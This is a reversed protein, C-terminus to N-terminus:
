NGLKKLKNKVNLLDKIDPVFAPKSPAAQAVAGPPPPPPPPPLPQTPAVNGGTATVSSSTIGFVSPGAFLPPRVQMQVLQITIGARRAENDVWVLGANVLCQVVCERRAVSDLTIPRNHEDFVRYMPQNNVDHRLNIILARGLDVGLDAGESKKVASVIDAKATPGLKARVKSELKTLLSVLAEKDNTRPELPLRLTRRKYADIRVALRVEIPPLMLLLLPVQKTGITMESRTAAVQYPKSVILEEPDLEDYKLFHM